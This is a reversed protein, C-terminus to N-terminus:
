FAVTQRQEIIRFSLSTYIVLVGFGFFVAFGYLPAAVAFIGAFVLAPIILRDLSGATMRIILAVDILDKLNSRM